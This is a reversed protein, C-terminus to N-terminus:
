GVFIEWKIRANRYQQPLYDKAEQISEHDFDQICEWNEDCAFRYIIKSGKYRCLALGYIKACLTGDTYDVQGFPIDSRAFELVKASGFHSPPKEM